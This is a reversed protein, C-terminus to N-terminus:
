LRAKDRASRDVYRSQPELGSANVLNVLAITSNLNLKKLIKHRYVGVTQLSINMEISIERSSLGQQLCGILQLERSSLANLGTNKQEFVQEAVINKIESCIYRKGKSVTVIADLLEQHPSNKTVYGKAGLRLLKRVFSPQSHMSVVLIGIAPSYNRIQEATEIGSTPSMNIDLMVIEPNLEQVLKIAEDGNSCQAVVSFRPDRNIIFAWTERILQHDDVILITIKGM